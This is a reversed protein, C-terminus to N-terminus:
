TLSPRKRTLRAQWARLEPGEMAYAIFLAKLARRLDGVDSRRRPRALHHLTFGDALAVFARAGEAPRRAGASRLAAEALRQFAALAESVAPRLAPHRASELYVELQALSPARPAALIAAAIQDALAAPSGGQRALRDALAGLEAAQEAVFLRLAERILEDISAFFYSTTATPVGARAAVARHTTGAFGREAVLELAARLLAQRREQGRARHTRPRIAM